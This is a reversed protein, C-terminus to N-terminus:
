DNDGGPAGARKGDPACFGGSDSIFGAEQMVAQVAHAASSEIDFTKDGRVATRRAACLVQLFSLDAVADRDMALVVRDAQQLARALAERIAAANEITLQGGMRITGPGESEAIRFSM